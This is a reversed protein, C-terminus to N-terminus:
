KPNQFKSAHNAAQYPDFNPYGYGNGYGYGYGYGGYHPSHYYPNMGYFPTAGGVGYPAAFPTGFPAMPPTQFPVPTGSPVETEIKYGGPFHQIYKSRQTKPAFKSKIKRRRRRPSVDFGDTEDYIVGEEDDDYMYNNHRLRDVSAYRNM